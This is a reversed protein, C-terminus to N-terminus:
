KYKNYNDDNNNDNREKKKNKQSASLDNRFVELIQTSM